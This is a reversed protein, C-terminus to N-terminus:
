EALEHITCGVDLDSKLLQPHLSVEMRAAVWNILIDAHTINQLIIMPHFVSEIVEENVQPLLLAGFALSM